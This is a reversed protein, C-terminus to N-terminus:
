RTRTATHCQAGPWADFDLTQPALTPVRTCGPLWETGIVLSCMVGTACYARTLPLAILTRLQQPQEVILAYACSVEARRPKRRVPAQAGPITVLISLGTLRGGIKSGNGCTEPRITSAMATPNTSMWRRPRQGVALAVAICVIVSTLRANSVMVSLDSVCGDLKSNNHAYYTYADHIAQRTYQQWVNKGEVYEKPIASQWTNLRYEDRPNEKNGWPYMRSKKGGRAAYEWEAETPLRGQPHAWRCFAQADNWSVHVVPHNMRGDKTIDTDPGEPHRWDAGDVPLWWPANAVAATIKSQTENSIFQEVVFSNGFSEAESVYGTESVFQAFRANSVEYPDIDFGDVCVEFSPGEGDEPFLGKDSGMSFCGGAISVMEHQSKDQLARQAAHALEDADVTQTTSCSGDTEAQQAAGPQSSRSPMGCGCSGEATEDSPEDTAGVSGEASAICKTMRCALALTALSKWMVGAM